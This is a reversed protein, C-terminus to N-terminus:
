QTEFVTFHTKTKAKQISHKFEFEFGINFHTPSYRAKASEIEIRDLQVLVTDIRFPKSLPKCHQSTIPKQVKEM